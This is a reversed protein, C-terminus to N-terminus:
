DLVGRGRKGRGKGGRGRGKGERGGRGGGFLGGGGVCDICAESERLMRPMEGMFRRRGGMVKLRAGEGEEEEEEEPEEEGGGVEM